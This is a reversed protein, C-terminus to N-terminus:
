SVWPLEMREGDPLFTGVPTASFVAVTVLPADGTNVIEHAVRPPLVLTNDPGFPMASGNARVEGSGALEPHRAVDTVISWVLRPPAAIEAQEVVEWM